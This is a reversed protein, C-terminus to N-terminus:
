PVRVAYRAALQQWLPSQLLQEFAADYKQRLADCQQCYAFYGDQIGIPPEVAVLKAEPNLRKMVGDANRLNTALWDIRQAQLMNLGNALTNAVVPQLRNRMQEFQPTYVWGNIVGIKKGILNQLNGDWSLGEGARVYFLMYDRYFARRSFLFKAEREPTKYPGILIHAQGTEVMWQARSWPYLAFSLQDGNKRALENLTAVALGDFKGDKDQEFVHSFDTGVVIIEAAWAPTLALLCWGVLLKKGPM